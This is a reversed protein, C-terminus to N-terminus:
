IRLKRSSRRILRMWSPECSCMRTKLRSTSFCSSSFAQVEQLQRQIEEMQEALDQSESPQSALQDKLKQCYEHLMNKEKEANQLDLLTKFWIAVELRAQVAQLRTQLEEFPKSPQEGTSSGELLRLRGSEFLFFLFHYLRENAISLAQTSDEV